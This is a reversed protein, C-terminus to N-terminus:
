LIRKAKTSGIPWRSWQGRVHENFYRGKSPANLWDLFLNPPIDPWYYDSGDNFVATCERTDFNYKLSHVASSEVPFEVEGSENQLSLLERLEILRGALSGAIAAAILGAIGGGAGATDTKNRTQLGQPEHIDDGDFGDTNSM